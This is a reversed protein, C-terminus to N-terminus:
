VWSMGGSGGAYFALLLADAKDPSRKIRKRTDDKQEVKIVGKADLKWRPAILEGVAEDDIESLDWLNNKCLDRGMWWMEDRLRHFKEPENSTEAVNVGVIEAGHESQRRILSGVVGWGWGIVDVKVREARYQLIAAIIEDVLDESDTTKGEWAILAKRGQKVAIVSRDGGAAVDVGLEVPGEGAESEQQCAIIASYPIVGNEANTPFRGRVKSVYRPDDEGWRQKREEVWVQSLLLQRLSDPVEENTFNPSELGDIGIVKWGSGPQCIDYFHSGRDDPNGIALVRCGENTALSDAADFIDVPVGCAEDIIVLVYQAHIGQFAAPDYDAPKRGMAVLEGNLWWETLNLTGPLHKNAHLRRLEKWLIVRVQSFTPATSVVFASGPKHSGIWWAMLAAAVFSKGLSHASHVAVYRNNMVADAVEKQKSWLFCGLTGTIYGVPTSGIVQNKITQRQILAEAILSQM